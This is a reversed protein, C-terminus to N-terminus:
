NILPSNVSSITVGMDKLEKAAKMVQATKGVVDADDTHPAFLDPQESEARHGKIYLETEEIIDELTEVVDSTYCVTEDGDESYPMSSKHPTNFYWPSNSSRLTRECSVSAGMILDDGGYSFSVGKVRLGVKFADPQELIRPIHEIMRTFAMYFQPRAKGKCAHTVDSMDELNWNENKKKTGYQYEIHIRDKKDIKVKRIFIRSEIAGEGSALVEDKDSTQRDSHQDSDKGPQTLILTM